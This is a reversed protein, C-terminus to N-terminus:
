RALFEELLARGGSPVPEAHAFLLTDFNEGDLM